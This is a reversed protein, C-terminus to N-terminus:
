PGSPRHSFMAWGPLAPSNLFSSSGSKRYLAGDLVAHAAKRLSLRMINALAALTWLFDPSAGYTRCEVAGSGWGSKVM